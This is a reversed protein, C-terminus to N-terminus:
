LPNITILDPMAENSVKNKLTQKKDIEFGRGKFFFIKTVIKKKRSGYFPPITLISIKRMRFALTVNDDDNDSDM